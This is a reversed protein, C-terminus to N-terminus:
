FLTEFTGDDYRVVVLGTSLERIVGVRVNDVRVEGKVGDPDVAGPFDLQMQANVSDTVTVFGGTDAGDDRTNGQVRFVQTFPQGRFLTLTASVNPDSFTDGTGDNEPQVFIGNLTGTLLVRAAQQTEGTGLIAEFSLTASAQPFNDATLTDGSANEFEPDFNAANAVTVSVSLDTSNQDNSFTGRLNVASPFFSADGNDPEEESPTANERDVCSQRTCRVITAGLEGTFSVAGGEQEAPPNTQALTIGPLSFTASSIRKADDTADDGDSLAVSGTKTLTATAGPSPISLQLGTGTATTFVTGTFNATLTQATTLEPNNPFSATLNADVNGDAGDIGVTVQGSAVSITAPFDAFTALYGAIEEEREPPYTGNVTYGSGCTAATTIRSDGDVTTNDEVCFAAAGLVEALGEFLFDVPGLVEETVNGNEDEIDAPDLLAAAMEVQMGFADAPTELENLGNLTNRVNGVLNKARAIGNSGANEAPAPDFDCDAENVPTEPDGDDCADSAEQAQLNLEALVGSNDASVGAGLLQAQADEVLNRLNSVSIAGSGAQAVLTSIVANLDVAQTRDQNALTAATLAAYVLQNPTAAAVAASDALNIPEQRLVDLGGLLQNIESAARDLAVALSESLATDAARQGAREVVLQTFPTIPARIGALPPGPLCTCLEFNAPAPLAEGLDYIDNGNTDGPASGDTQGTPGCAAGDTADCLVTTAPLEATVDAAARAKICVQVPGGAYGTYSVSYNGNEDTTGTGIPVLAGSSNFQGMEVVGNRIIGKTGSGSVTGDPSTNFAPPPAAPAPAAGGGGGGGCAALGLSALAVLAVPLNLHKINM